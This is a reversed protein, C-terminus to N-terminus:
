LGTVEKLADFMAQEAGLEAWQPVLDVLVAFRFEDPLAALFEQYPLLKQNNGREILSRIAPHKQLQALIHDQELQVPDSQTM